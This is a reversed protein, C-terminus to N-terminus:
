LLIDVDILQPASTGLAPAWGTLATLERRFSDGSTHTKLIMHRGDPARLRLVRTSTGPWSHDTVVEAPGAM